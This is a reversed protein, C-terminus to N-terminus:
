FMGSDMESPMNRLISCLERNICQRRYLVIWSFDEKIAVSLIVEAGCDFFDIKYVNFTRNKIENTWGICFTCVFLNPQLPHREMGSPIAGCKRVRNQLSDVSKVHGDVYAQLPLSIKLEPPQLEQSLCSIPVRNQVQKPKPKFHKRSTLRLKRHGRRDNM